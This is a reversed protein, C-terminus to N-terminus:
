AITPGGICGVEKYCLDIFLVLVASGGEQVYLLVADAPGDNAM